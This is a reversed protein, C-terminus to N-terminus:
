HSYRHYFHFPNENIDHVIFWQSKTTGDSYTITYRRERGLSTWISELLVMKIPIMTEGLLPNDRM